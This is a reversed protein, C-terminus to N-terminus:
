NTFNNANGTEIGFVHSVRQADHGLQQKLEDIGSFKREDRLREIIEIKLDQGYLDGNFNLFHIEITTSFEAHFTPKMGINMMGYVKKGSVSAQIAYVGRKPIILEKPSLLNATPYGLTRGREEGHIVTGCLCPHRGLMEQALNIDGQSMAKRINSSSIVKGKILQAQLVSVTFGFREGIMGLMDPTGLGKSGFSYNFGVVVHVAGLNILIEEVFQEPSMKATERTFSLLYVRDVGIKEFIKLREAQTTLLKLGHEPFLVQLPHPHFVLVALPLGLRRSETLGSELLKRHGLHVGDFNGLAVVCQSERGPLDSMVQM